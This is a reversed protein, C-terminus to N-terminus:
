QEQRVDQVKRIHWANHRDCHYKEEEPITHLGSLSRKIKRELIYDDATKRTYCTRECPAPRVHTM